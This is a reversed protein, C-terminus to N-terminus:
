FIFLSLLMGSKKSKDTKEFPKSLMMESLNIADVKKGVKAELFLHFAMASLVTKYNKTMNSDAIEIDTINHRVKEGELATFFGYNIKKKPSKTVAVGSALHLYTPSSHKIHGLLVDSVIACAQNRALPVYEPKESAEIGEGSINKGTPSKKVRASKGTTPASIKSKMDKWDQSKATSSDVVVTNKSLEVVNDWMEQLESFHKNRDDEAQKVKAREVAERIKKAKDDADKKAKNAAELKRVKEDKIEAEIEAEAKIDIKDAATVEAQILNTMINEIVRLTIKLIRLYFTFLVSSGIDSVTEEKNIPLGSPIIDIHEINAAREQKKKEKEEKEKRSREVAERVRRAKEDAEKKMKNAEEIKKSKEDALDVKFKDEAGRKHVREEVEQRRRNEIAGSEKLEDERKVEDMESKKSEEDEQKINNEAIDLDKIEIEKKLKEKEMEIKKKDEDDQKEKRTTVEIEEKEKKVKEIETIRNEEEQKIKSEAVEFNDQKRGKEIDARKSEEEELKRKNEVAEM